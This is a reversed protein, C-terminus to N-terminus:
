KNLIRKVQKVIDYYMFCYMTCVYLICFSIICYVFLTHCLNNVVAFIHLLDFSIINSVNLQFGTELIVM